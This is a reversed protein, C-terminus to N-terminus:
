VPISLSCKLVLCAGAGGDRPRSGPPPNSPVRITAIDSPRCQACNVYAVDRRSLTYKLAQFQRGQSSREVSHTPNACVPPVTCPPRQEGHRDLDNHREPM